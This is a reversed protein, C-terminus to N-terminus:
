APAGAAESFRRRYEARSTENVDVDTARARLAGVTADDKAVHRFPDLRFFTAANEWTIMEIEGDPVEAQQLEGLLMDPSRPWMSDSHPYDCEWAISSVGIEDRLRLSSPGSIFCALFHNAFLERASTYGIDMGTWSQNWLNLDIRDLLPPVWGIGGESMAIRLDPFRAFTGSAILDVCAIASLQPSFLLRSAMTAGEPRSISHFAGGIHLCMVMGEDSAARWVPDWHDGFFGPLGVVHPTEPFSAATVGKRACRHIEAVTADVDWSPLIVLPVLRGPYAAAWEDVHWDNYASVIANTLTRDPASMLHTGAFGPFTPFNMSALLGNADMDRVRAHVDYCGPRMEAYELPDNDWETRPWSAVANLGTGGFEMGQFVWRQAGADNRVVRPAQDALSAPLHREFVDAPEVVHDDVSILIMDNVTMKQAGQRHSLAM